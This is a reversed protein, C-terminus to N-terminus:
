SLGRNVYYDGKKEHNPMMVHEGWQSLYYQHKSKMLFGDREVM